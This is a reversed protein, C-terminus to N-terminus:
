TWSTRKTGTTWFPCQHRLQYVRARGQHGQSWACRTSWAPRARRPFYEFICHSIYFLSLGLCATEVQSFVFREHLVFLSCFIQTLRKLLIVLFTIFLKGCCSLHAIHLIVLSVLKILNILSLHANQPVESLLSGIVRFIAIM